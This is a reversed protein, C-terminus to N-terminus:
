KKDKTKQYWEFMDAAYKNLEKLKHLVKDRIELSTIKDKGRAWNSVYDALEKAQTNTLGAAKVVRIIKEQDFPEESKDRKIVKTQMNELTDVKFDTNLNQIQKKSM